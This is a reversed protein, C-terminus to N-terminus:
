PPPLDLIDSSSSLSHNSSSTKLYASVDRALQGILVGFVIWFLTSYFAEGTLSRALFGSIGVGKTDEHEHEYVPEDDEPKDRLMETLTEDSNDEIKELEIGHKGMKAFIDHGVKVALKDQSTVVHVKSNVSRINIVFIIIFTVIHIIYSIISMIISYCLSGM